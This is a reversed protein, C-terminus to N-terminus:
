VLNERSQLESTHEESRALGRAPKRSLRQIPAREALGPRTGDRLGRGTGCRRRPEHWAGRKRVFPSPVGFRLPDRGRKDTPHRYLIPLADHLSPTSTDPT